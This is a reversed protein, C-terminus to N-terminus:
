LGKLVGLGQFINSELFDMISADTARMTPVFEIWKTFYYTATLIWRHQSSSNPKIEGIFDLDWQQFPPEALIPNLPLPMLKRKGYFIHCQHCTTMEKYTDSFM